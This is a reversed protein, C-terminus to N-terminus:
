MTTSGFGSEGRETADLEDVRVMRVRVGSFDVLQVLARGKELTYAEGRINDLLAHLEGTYGVDVLGPSNAVRLPTKYISSRPVIMLGAKGNEPQVCVGLPVKKTEYPAFTVTEAVYLDTGSDSAYNDVALSGHPLVVVKVVRAREGTLVVRAREYFWSLM